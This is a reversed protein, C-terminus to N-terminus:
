THNMYPVHITCSIGSGGALRWARGAMWRRGRPGDSLWAGPGAGSSPQVPRAAPRRRRCRMYWVHVMCSDCRINWVHIVGSTGYM